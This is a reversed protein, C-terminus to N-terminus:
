WVRMNHFHLECTVFKGHKPNRPGCGVDLDKICPGPLVLISEAGPIEGHHLSRSYPRASCWIRGFTEVIFYEAQEDICEGDQAGSDGARICRNHMRAFGTVWELRFCVRIMISRGDGQRPSERARPGDEWITRRRAWGPQLCSHWPSSDVHIPPNPCRQRLPNPSGALPRPIKSGREWPRGWDEAGAPISALPCGSHALRRGRGAGVPSKTCATGSWASRWVARRGRCASRISSPIM